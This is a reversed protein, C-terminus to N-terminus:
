RGGGLEPRIAAVLAAVDASVAEVSEPYLTAGFSDVSARGVLRLRRGLVARFLAEALREPDPVRRLEDLAEALTRGWLAETASRDLNATLAGTGDDLVLRARLDPAPEIAGHVRCLGQVVSRRCTPCRYVIGSPPRLDLVIGEVTLWAGGGGDVVDAIATPAPTGAAGIEPLGEGSIREVSSRQDLVLQPRGLFGRVYAGGIRVPEGSQLRFDSWATFAVSGTGDLLIGEHIEHREEGVSVTKPRVRAIRVEVSFGEDGPAIERVTKQPREGPPISPLEAESAPEVRSKWGISVEPRGRFEAVSVGAARLVTGREIGSAPPDWWTFRVTATGDSLLGSLVPRRGGDSRRTVERREATVVRAVIVIPGETPRLDRM